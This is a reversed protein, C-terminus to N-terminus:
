AREPQAKGLSCLITKSSWVFKMLVNSLVKTVNTSNAGVAPQEKGEFASKILDYMVGAGPVGWSLIANKVKKSPVLEKHFKCLIQNPDAVKSRHLM